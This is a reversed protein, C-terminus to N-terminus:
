VIISVFGLSKAQSATLSTDSLILQELTNKQLGPCCRLYHKNIIQQYTLCNATGMIIEELNGDVRSSLEHVMYVATHDMKKEGTAAVCILTAASCVEGVALTHMYIYKFSQMAHCIFFACTPDGGKSNVHLTFCPLVDLTFKVALLGYKQDIRKILGVLINSSSEDIEGSFYIDTGIQFINETSSDEDSETDDEEHNKITKHQRSHKKKDHKSRHRMKKNICM